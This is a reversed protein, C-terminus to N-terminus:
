MKDTFNDEFKDREMFVVENRDAYLTNVCNLIVLDEEISVMVVYGNQVLMDAVKFADERITFCLEIPSIMDIVVICRTYLRQMNSM